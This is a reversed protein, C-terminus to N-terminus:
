RLPGERMGGGQLLIATASQVDNGTQRLAQMVRDRGFGMDVLMQVNEESPESFSFYTTYVKDAILM